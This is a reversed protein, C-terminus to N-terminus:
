FLEVAGSEMSIQTVSKHAPQRWDASVQAAPAEVASLLANLSGAEDGIQQLRRVHQAAAGLSQTAIDEFQLCRVAQTVAGNIQEGAAAADRASGAVAHNIEEVQGLLRGVENKAQLSASMDRTAMEGVAERVKAIADKSSFVLKRIQENFHTSRESLNRVEEAVAAFGRGAEGARAAEIAANLALLNTQDAITKVDGLLEFIADLHRVMADIHQVSSASQRSVGALVEVLGEMLQSATQAFKRVDVGNQGDRGEARNLIKSVAAEQARAQRNMTDFSVALTRVAAQVLGRVREVEHQVGQSEKVLGGRLEDLMQRHRLLALDHHRAVAATARSARLNLWGFGVWTAVLVGLGAWVMMPPAAALQLSLYALTGALPLVYPKLKFPTM